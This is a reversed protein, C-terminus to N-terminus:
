PQPTWSESWRLAFLLNHQVLDDRAPDYVPRDAMLQDCFLYGITEGGASTLDAYDKVPIRTGEAFPELVLDRLQWPRLNTFPSLKAPRVFCNINLLWYLERGRSNPDGSGSGRAAFPGIMSEPRAAEMVRVQVWEALDDDKFPQGGGYDISPRSSNLVSALQDEFYQQISGVVNAAKANEDLGM